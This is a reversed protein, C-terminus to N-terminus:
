TTTITAFISAVEIVFREGFLIIDHVRHWIQPIAQFGLKLSSIPNREEPLKTESSM